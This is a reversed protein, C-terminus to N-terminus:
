RGLRVSLLFDAIDKLVQDNITEEINGYNMSERRNSAKQFLHNLGEYCKVKAQPVLQRISELNMDADVQFDYDGNLALVPCEVKPLYATADLRVFNVYWPQTMARVTQKVAEDARGEEKATEEIVRGLEAIDEVTDIATFIKQLRDTQEADLPVGRFEAIASNQKLMLDRGKVAMGALSVVFAVEDPYEAADIFAITGGESHGLLGVCSSDIDSRGKLYRLASMADEAYDFTTDDPTGASSGGVGRDDYRLVAWGARTLYDAIVAFPKHGLMEEDRNQLGSGSILVVAGPKQMSYYPKTLTGALDVGGHGFSVEEVQYMFPPRPEQPRNISVESETTRVLTTALSVGQTFTGAISSGDASLVGEFRGRISPIDIRITDGNVEADGCPIGRVGQTPSDMTVKLADESDFMHFVIPVVSVQGKWWGAFGERACLTMGTMMSLAVLAGKLM